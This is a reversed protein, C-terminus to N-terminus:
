PLTCVLKKHDVAPGFDPVPQVLSEVGFSRGLVTAIRAAALGDGYPNGISPTRNFSAPDPLLESLRCAIDSARWGILESLGAEVGEPRETNERLVLIPKGFIPAEEQVGGSDTLIIEAHQMHSVFSVYDLPPILHINEKAGLEKHVVPGVNPNPHVPLVFDVGPFSEAVISIGRCIETLREGHNERRHVTVLVFRRNYRVPVPAPTTELRRVTELLADIGTNGTVHITDSAIGERLLNERACRTPAFQFDTVVSIWRRNIEEPFPSFKENTRLGAEVHAVPIRHFFASAAAAFASTTDGQVILLDPKHKTLLRGVGRLVAAATAGISQNKKMIKLNANPALDFFKLLGDVLELHQGTLILDLKVDGSQRLCSIVPSLKITEPRTGMVAMIKLMTKDLSLM